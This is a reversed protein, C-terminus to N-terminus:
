GNEIEKIKNAFFMKCELIEFVYNLKLFNKYNTFTNGKVQQLIM